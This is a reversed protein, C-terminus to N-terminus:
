PEGILIPLQREGTLARIQEVVKAADSRVRTNVGEGQRGRRGPRVLVGGEYLHVCQRHEVLESLASRLEDM